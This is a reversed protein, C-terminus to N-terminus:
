WVKATKDNSATALRTEDPSFVACWVPGTHGYLTFIGGHCLRQLYHWEWGRLEAPVQELRDQALRVDGKDISAQALLIQDLALTYELKKENEQAIKTQRIAEAGQKKAEKEQERAAQANKDALLAQEKAEAKAILADDRDLGAQKEAQRAD